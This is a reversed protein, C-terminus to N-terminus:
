RTINEINQHKLLLTKDYHKLLFHFGFYPLMVPTKVQM